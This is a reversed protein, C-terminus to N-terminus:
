IEEGFLAPVEQTNSSGEFPPELEGKLSEKKKRVVKEDSKVKKGDGGIIGKM